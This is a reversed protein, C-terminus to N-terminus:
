LENDDINSLGDLHAIYKKVRAKIREHYEIKPPPLIELRGRGGAKQKADYAAKRKRGPEKKDTM